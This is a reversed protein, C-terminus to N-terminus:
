VQFVGGGGGGRGSSRTVAYVGSCSYYGLLCLYTPRGIGIRKGSLSYVTLTSIQYGDCSINVEVGYVYVNQM